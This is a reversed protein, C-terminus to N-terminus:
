DLREYYFPKKDKDGRLVVPRLRMGANELDILYMITFRNERPFYVTVGHYPLINIDKGVPIIGLRGEKPSVTLPLSTGIMKNVFDLENKIQLYSYYRIFADNARKRIDERAVRVSRDPNKLKPNFVNTLLSTEYKRSDVIKEIPQIAMAYADM